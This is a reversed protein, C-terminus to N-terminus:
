HGEEIEPVKLVTAEFISRDSDVVHIEALTIRLFQHM